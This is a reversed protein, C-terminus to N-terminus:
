HLLNIVVYIAYIIIVIQFAIIYNIYKNISSPFTLINSNSRQIPIFLNDKKSQKIIDPSPPLPKSYIPINEDSYKRIYYDNDDTDLFYDYEM